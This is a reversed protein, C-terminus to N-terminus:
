RLRSQFHTPTSTLQWRRLHRQMLVAPLLRLLLYRTCLVRLVVGLKNWPWLSKRRHKLIKLIIPIWKGGNERRRNFYSHARLHHPPKLYVHMTLCRSLTLVEQELSLLQVNYRSGTITWSSCCRNKSFTCTCTSSFPFISLSVLKAEIGGNYSQQGPVYGMYKDSPPPRSHYATLLPCIILIRILISLIDM